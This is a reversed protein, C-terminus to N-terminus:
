PSPLRSNGDRDRFNPICLRYVQLILVSVPAPPPLTGLKRGTNTDLLGWVPKIYREDWRESHEKTPRARKRAVLGPSEPPRLRRGLRPEVPPPTKNAGAIATLTSYFSSPPYSMYNASITCPSYSNRHAYQRNLYPAPLGCLTGPAVRLSPSPEPVGLFSVFGNGQGFPLSIANNIPIGSHTLVILFRLGM